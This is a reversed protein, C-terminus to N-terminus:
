GEIKEWIAEKGPSQNWGSYEDVGGDAGGPAVDSGGHSGEEATESCDISRQPRYWTMLLPVDDEEWDEEEGCYPTGNKGVRLIAPEPVDPNENNMRVADHIRIVQAATAKGKGKGEYSPYYTDSVSLDMDTEIGWVAVTYPKVPKWDGGQLGGDDNHYWHGFQEDEVDEMYDEQDSRTSVCDGGDDWAGWFADPNNPSELVPHQIPPSFIIDSETGRSFPGQSSDYAKKSSKNRPNNSANITTKVVAHPGSRNFQVLIEEENGYWPYTTNDSDTTDIVTVWKEEDAQESFNAFSMVGEPASSALIRRFVDYHFHCARKINHSDEWIKRTGIAMKVVEVKEPEMGNMVAAQEKIRRAEKENEERRAIKRAQLVEATPPEFFDFPDLDMNETAPKYCFGEAEAKRARRERIIAAPTKQWDELVMAPIYNIFTAQAMEMIRLYNPPFEENKAWPYSYHCVLRIDPATFYPLSFWNDPAILPAWAGPFIPEATGEGRSGSRVRLDPPTTATTPFGQVEDWEKEVDQKIVFVAIQSCDGFVARAKRGLPSLGDVQSAFLDELGDCLELDEGTDGEVGDDLFEDAADELSKDIAYGTGGIVNMGRDLGGVGTFSVDYGFQEASTRAWARFESRTWEFRHDHHRMPYPIGPRWYRSEADGPINDPGPEVPPSSVRIPPDEPTAEKHIGDELSQAAAELAQILSHGTAVHAQPQDLTVDMGEMISDMNPLNTNEVVPKVLPSRDLPTFPIEFVKNFDRNPTTIVCIKPKMKGLLVPAFQSLPQPDLHEIVLFTM